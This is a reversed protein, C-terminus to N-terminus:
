KAIKEPLDAVGERVANKEPKPQDDNDGYMLYALLESLMAFDFRGLNEQYQEPLVTKVLAIMRQRIAELEKIDQIKGIADSCANMEALASIPLMDCNFGNGAEDTAIWVQRQTLKAFVKGM